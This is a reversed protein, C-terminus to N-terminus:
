GHALYELGLVVVAVLGLATLSLLRQWWVLDTRRVALIGVVVLSLVLAAISLQIAWEAPLAGFAGVVLFVIPLGVVGVAGLCVRAVHRLEAGTLVREHVTMQALVDAVLVALVTGLVTILLTTLAALSSTEGHSDIAILVALATFAVYIREKLLQSREAPELGATPAAPPPAPAAELERDDRGASVNRTFIVLWVFILLVAVLELATLNYYGVAFLLTVLAMAAIVVITTTLFSRPLDRLVIPAGILLAAFGVLAAIAVINHVVANVDVPILGVAVLAVGVMILTVRVFAVGRTERDGPRHRARLDITLYDALTGVVLGAIVITLNFTLASAADGVGLSSFNSQWWAPDDATLMSGFVGAILFLGLLTALRSTTLRSAITTLAYGSIGTTVGLILVAGLPDLVLDRFALQFVAFVSSVLLMVVGVGTLTLGVTDLVRRWRSRRRWRAEGRSSTVYSVAFAPTGIGVIALAAVGTISDEGALAPTRGAFVIVATVAGAVAGFVAALVARSEERGWASMWTLDTPRPPPGNTM